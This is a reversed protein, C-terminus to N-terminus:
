GAVLTERERETALVGDVRRQADLLQKTTNTNMRQRMMKSSLSPELVSNVRTAMSESGSDIEEEEEEEERYAKAARGSVRGVGKKKYKSTSTYGKKKM